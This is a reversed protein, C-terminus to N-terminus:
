LIFQKRQIIKGNIIEIIREKCKNKLNKLYNYFRCYSTNVM